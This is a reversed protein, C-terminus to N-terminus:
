HTMMQAASSIIWWLAALGISTAILWAPKTIRSLEGKVQECVYNFAVLTVANPSAVRWGKDNIEGLAEKVMSELIHNDM